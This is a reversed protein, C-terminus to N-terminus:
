INIIGGVSAGSSKFAVRRRWVPQESRVAPGGDRM